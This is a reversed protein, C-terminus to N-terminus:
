RDRELLKDAEAYLARHSRILDLTERRSIVPEGRHTAFSARQGTALRVVAGTRRHPSTSVRRLRLYRRWARESRRPVEIHFEHLYVTPSVTYRGGTWLTVAEPGTWGMPLGSALIAKRVRTWEAARLDPRESPGLLRYRGRGVRGVIGRSKLESLTQVPRLSGIRIRFDEVAFPREGFALALADAYTISM